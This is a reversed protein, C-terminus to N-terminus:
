ADTPGEAMAAQVAAIEALARGLEDILKDAMEPSISLGVYAVQKRCRAEISIWQRGRLSHTYAAIEDADTHQIQVMM